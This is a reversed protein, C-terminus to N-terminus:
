TFFSQLGEYLIDESFGCEKCKLTAVHKLKPLNSIYKIFPLKQTATFQNFFEELEIDSFEERTYVTEDDYVQEICSLILNNIADVSNESKDYRMADEIRPHRLKVGVTDNVAITKTTDSHKFIVDEGTEDEHMVEISSLDIGVNITKDCKKNEDDKPKNPCDNVRYAIEVNPGISKIRIYLFLYEIDYMPMREPDIKNFTCVSILEKVANTIEDIDDGELATLVIKEEGVTFPRYSLQMGNSPLNLKYIPYELKPLAM